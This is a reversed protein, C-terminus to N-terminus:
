SKVSEIELGDNQIYDVVIWSPKSDVIECIGKHPLQVSTSFIAFLITATRSAGLTGAILELSGAPCGISRSSTAKFYEFHEDRHEPGAAM